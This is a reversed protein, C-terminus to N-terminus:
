PDFPLGLTGAVVVPLGNLRDTGDADVSRASKNPVYRLGFMVVMLVYAAWLPVACVNLANCVNLAAMATVPLEVIVPVRVPNVPNVTALPPAVMVPFEVIVPVRPLRVPNVTALPPIVTVDPLMAALPDDGSRSKLPLVPVGDTLTCAVLPSVNRFAAAELVM